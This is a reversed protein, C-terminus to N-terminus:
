LLYKQYYSNLPKQIYEGFAECKEFGLKKYLKVAFIFKESTELKLIKLNRKLAHKELETMLKTALGKGRYSDLTFMRTAEAYDDYYKLGGMGVLTDDHFIGLLTSNVKEMERPQTLHCIDAPCHSLNHEDLLRFLEKVEKMMPSIEEIQINM